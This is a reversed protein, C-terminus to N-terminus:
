HRASSRTTRSACWQHALEHSQVSATRKQGQLGSKEDDYLYVSTRGTILGWNEMAGADFDSAVLTDLKPLPYAIKFIKEYIPTVKATVDLAYQAQHIYEGTAYIKIPVTKGTIPSVFSSELSKFPGNAWAVLYSSVLPLKEYSTVSWAGGDAPEAASETKGTKALETVGAKVGLEELRLLKDAESRSISKTSEVPMDIVCM